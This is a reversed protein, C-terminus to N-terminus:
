NKAADLVGIRQAAAVADRRTTAELRAMIASVHHEATKASICLRDAIEANSLREALLALVQMQRRTLGLPNALTVTNPGRPITRAGGARLQRRLRAAAPAAGLRDFIALAELAAEGGAESLAMAEEYPCGLARWGEAAARWRAACHDAFPTSLDTGPGPPVGLSALWLSSEDVIWRVKRELATQRIGLLRQRCAARESSGAPAALWAREAHVIAVFIERQLEDLTASLADLESLPADADAEGRRLRLRALAVLAPFRYIVATSSRRCVAEAQAEAARWDGQDLLIMARWGHLYAEWHLLDFRAAYAAGAEIHELSTAYRRRWYCECSFNCWAREAHDHLGATVAIELSRGLEGDADIGSGIRATGLNALAHAIIERDELRQALALAREGWRVAEEGHFALMDLQSQHSYAWALEAGPPAGELVRIAEAVFREAQGRQGCIWAFRTLRTLDHGLRLTDGSSRRMRAAATMSDMAVTPAGMLYAQEAHAELMSATMADDMVVRHRLVTSFHAAAERYAGTRAAYEGAQRAYQVLAGIDGAREAHHAIESARAGERSRLARVVQAHLARRRSAELADEVARRAIEHRFRVANGDLALMGKAVCADLGGAFGEGCLQAVLALEASRPFISVAELVTRGAPPLRAARALTADRVSGPPADGEVALAETVLFPNGGTLAFLAAGSRGSRAALVDVAGPSLPELAIREVSGAPAEGLVDRLPSRADLEEDRYTIVLLARLRSIRRCLFRILDLTATDAWHVDEIVLVSAARGVSLLGLLAEFASMPSAAPDFVYQGGSSRAIDRLALLPEPTMLHECAGRYVPGEGAHSEAFREVLTTKGSGAEGSVAVTGGHGAAARDLAAALRQLPEDRELLEVATKM